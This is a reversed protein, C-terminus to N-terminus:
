TPRLTIFTECKYCHLDRAFHGHRGGITTLLSLVVSPSNRYTCKSCPAQNAHISPEDRQLSEEIEKQLRKFANNGEGYIAPMFVGFIGLLCYAADEERKTDRNAAWSKRAEVSFHSLPSGELAKSEIGTIAQIEQVLSKRDGLYEGEASYFEVSKPALLEQLTWGRTFWRSRQFSPVWTARPLQGKGKASDVSVDSLYVYCKAANAYWRFMSNIAETLEASSSKNICCTDVWFWELSDKAAQKGCFTLKRYESKSKGGGELVDQITLEEQDPGWTHSLIAYPPIDRGSHEKLSFCGDIELRLLRM